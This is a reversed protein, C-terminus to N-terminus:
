ETRFPILGVLAEDEYDSSAYNENGEEITRLRTASRLSTM